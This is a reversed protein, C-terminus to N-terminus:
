LVLKLEGTKGLLWWTNELSDRLSNYKHLSHPSGQIRKWTGHEEGRFYLWLTLRLTVVLVFEQKLSLATSVGEPLADM